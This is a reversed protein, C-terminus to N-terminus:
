LGLRTEILKLYTLEACAKEFHARQLEVVWRWTQVDQHVMEVRRKLDGPTRVRLFDRLPRPADELINDQDDYFPHFFCVVGAAFAEWPKATAWGSGSAPTTFTSHVTQIKPIYELLPVPKPYVGIEDMTKESWVGKIFDPQLPLIWDVLIKRRSKELSVDRRTENLVVGFSERGEWRDNFRITDGFPSGPVLSSIELRSYITRTPSEIVDDGTEHKMLNVQNRQGLIPHDLPHASDRYKPYNRSDANLLVPEYWKPQQARWANLGTLLYGAYLNAWDYPKTLKSRDRISPLPFNSTGHQGVWMILEDLGRFTEGVVDFMLHKLRVHDEISLNAYSLGAMNLRRRLQPAWDVWPNKVNSPLGVAQPDEGSNRGVLIFDVDPHREALLKVTPVMENDGGLSTCEALNLEMSRGLKAYGVRMREGASKRM